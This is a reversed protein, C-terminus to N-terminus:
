QFKQGAASADARLFHITEIKRNGKVRDLLFADITFGQLMPFFPDRRSRRFLRSTKVSLRIGTTEKRWLGILGTGYM